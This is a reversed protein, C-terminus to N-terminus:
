RKASRPISTNPTELPVYAPPSFSVRTREPPDVCYIRLWASFQPKESNFLTEMAHKVCTAVNEVQAHSVWHEAAYKALPIDKASQKDARDDLCLLVGLCAQTLIAHAPEPLIHYRSIDGGATTLRKSTLFEKVSFPSFQVVRSGESDVISILGSCASLVAQEQDEWRWEARNTPIGKDAADPDFALVDALEEVRLARKAVTLCHLLRRANAQNISHIERIVREYTKDLSQPLENLQRRLSPALRHRLM